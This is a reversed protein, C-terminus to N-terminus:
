KAKEEGTAPGMEIVEETQETLTYDFGSQRVLEVVEDFFSQDERVTRMPVIEFTCGPFNPIPVTKWWKLIKM